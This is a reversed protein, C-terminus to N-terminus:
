VDKSEVFALYGIFQQNLKDLGEKITIYGPPGHTKYGSWGALRAITWTAWALSDKKYPNKQKETAGEVKKQVLELYDLEQQSFVEQSHIMQDSLALKLQMIKLAAQLTMALLKKLGSGSGLQSSEIAFGKTKIVRFLEEILWRKKYWEICQNAQEISEIKHTTLLRWLIPQEGAPVSDQHEKVLIASLDIAKTKGKYNGPAAISVQCFSIELKAQRAERKKNSSVTVVSGGQVSAQDLATYLKGGDSLNRDSRSRVLIYTTEDPIREFEEYLDSERDGIITKQVLAPIRDKSLECSRIWRYSEKEEIPLQSYKRELKNKQDWSRNYILSSSLGFISPSDADVVLMPHCFFGAIAKVGTPGIDPDLETLKKKIGQYNFETTDQICLVHTSNIAASCLRYSGELIADHDFRDNSLM